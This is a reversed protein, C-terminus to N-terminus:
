GPIPFGYSSLFERHCNPCTAQRMGAALITASSAGADKEADFDCVGTLGEPVASVPGDNYERPRGETLAEALVFGKGCRECTAVVNEASCHPCTAMRTITMQRLM